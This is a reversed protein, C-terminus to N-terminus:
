PGELAVALERLRGAEALLRAGEREVASHAEESLAGGTAYRRYQGVEHELDGALGDLWELESDIPALGVREALERLLIAEMSLPPQRALLRRGQKGLGSNRARLMQRVITAATEIEDAAARLYASEEPRLPRARAARRLLATPPREMSVEVPWRTTAIAIRWSARLWLHGGSDRGRRPAYWIPLWWGREDAAVRVALLDGEQVPRGLLVHRPEDGSRDEELVGVLPEATRRRAM